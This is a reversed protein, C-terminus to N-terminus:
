GDRRPAALKPRKGKARRLTRAVSDRSVGLAGAIQRQSLGAHELRIIDKIKRMSLRKAAM